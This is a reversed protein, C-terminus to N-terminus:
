RFDVMTSSPGQYEAELLARAYPHAARGRRLDEIGLSEVIHGERMVAVHDCLHSAVALDHTVLLYTVGSRRRLASLLNLIEAQISVDLSSTPEDLLLLKPELILARAIGIRQRQGGSLEHPYRFRFNGGLGVEDLAAQIRADQRDIGHIVLPERLIRDVTHRPHLSSFPDQFVIQVDRRFALGPVSPLAVGGLEVRGAWHPLLGCLTRLVTSKGSGSEGVLAFSSSPAVAFSVGRVAHVATRGRGLVVHLNEITVDLSM